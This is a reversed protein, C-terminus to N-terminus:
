IGDAHKISTFSTYIPQSHNSLLLMYYINKIQTKSVMKFKLSFM